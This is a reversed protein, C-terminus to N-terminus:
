NFTIEREVQIMKNIERMAKNYNKGLTKKNDFELDTKNMGKSKEIMSKTAMENSFLVRILDNSIVTNLNFFVALGDQNDFDGSYFGVVGEIYNYLFRLFYNSVGLYNTAEGIEEIGLAYGVMVKNEALLVYSKSQTNGIRMNIIRANVMGGVPIKEGNPLYPDLGKMKSSRTLNIKAEVVNVHSKKLDDEKVSFHIEGVPNLPDFDDILPFTLQPFKLKGLFYTAKFSVYVDSTEEDLYSEVKSYRVFNTQGSGGSCSFLFFVMLLPWCVKTVNKM